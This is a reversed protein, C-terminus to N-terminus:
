DGSGNREQGPPDGDGRGNGMIWGLGPSVGLDKALKGWGVANTGDGDRRAALAGVTMGTQDAWAHLRVAGGLGYREALDGFAALDGVEIEREALRDVANAISEADLAEGAAEPEDSEEAQVGAPRQGQPSVRTALVTGSVAVLLALAALLAIRNTRNM